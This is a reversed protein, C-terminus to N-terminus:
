SISAWTAYEPFRTLADLRRYRSTARDSSDAALLISSRHWRRTPRTRKSVAAKARSRELLLHVVLEASHLGSDFAAPSSGSRRGTRKHERRGDASRRDGNAADGAPNRRLAAHGFRRLRAATRRAVDHGDRDGDALGCNYASLAARVNGGNQAILDSLMGAAYNANQAPQMAAPTAAFAHYRDDIQFLGRGHGGDGVINAGSNSGPGGTEQAAVAALLAPDLGHARAASAITSGFRIGPLADM